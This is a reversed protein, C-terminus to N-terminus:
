FLLRYQLFFLSARNVKGGHVICGISQEEIRKTERRGKGAISQSWCRSFFFFIVHKTTRCSLANTILSMCPSILFYSLDSKEEEIAAAEKDDKLGFGWFSRIFFYHHRIPFYSFQMQFVYCTFCVIGEALINLGIVSCTCGIAGSDGDM